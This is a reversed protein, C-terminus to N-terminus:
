VKVRTRKVPPVELPHKNMRLIQRDSVSFSPEWHRRLLADNWALRQRVVYAHHHLVDLLGDGVQLSQSEPGELEVVLVLTKAM